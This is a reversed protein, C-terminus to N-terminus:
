SAAIASSMIRMKKQPADTITKEDLVHVASDPTIV